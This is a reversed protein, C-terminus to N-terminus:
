ALLRWGLYLVAALLFGVAATWQVQSGAPRRVIIISDSLSDTDKRYEVDVSPFLARLRRSKLDSWVWCDYLAITHEDLVKIRAGDQGGSNALQLMARRLPDM